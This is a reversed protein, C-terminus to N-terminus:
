HTMQYSSLMLFPRVIIELNLPSLRTPSAQPSSSISRSSMLVKKWSSSKLMVPKGDSKRTSYFVEAVVKARKPPLKVKGSPSRPLCPRKTLVMARTHPPCVVCFPRVSAPYVKWNLSGFSSGHHVTLVENGEEEDEYGLLNNEQESYKEDEDVKSSLAM